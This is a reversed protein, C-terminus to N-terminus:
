HGRMLIPLYLRRAAAGAVAWFGGALTYVGGTLLGAEPQGTAGEVRYEAGQSSSPSGGQVSWWTIAYAGDSYAPTASAGLLVLLALLMGARAVNMKRTM